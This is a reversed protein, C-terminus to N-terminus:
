SHRPAGWGGSRAPFQGVGCVVLKGGVELLAVEIEADYLALRDGLEGGLFGVVDDYYARAAGAHGGYKGGHFLACLYGAELFLGHHGGIAVTAGEDRFLVGGGGADLAPAAVPGAEVVPPDVVVQEVVIHFVGLFGHRPHYGLAAGDADLGDLEEGVAGDAVIVAANDGNAVRGLGRILVEHSSEGLLCGVATGCEVVFGGAHLEDLFLVAGDGAGDALLFVAGIHLEGGCLAHHQGGAIVHVVLRHHIPVHAIRGHEGEAQDVVCAVPVDEANQCAPAHCRESVGPLDVGVIDAGEHEIGEQGEIDVALAEAVFGNRHAAQVDGHGGGVFGLIAADVVADEVRLGFAGHLTDGAYRRHGEYALAAGPHIGFRHHRPIGELLEALHGANGDLLSHGADLSVVLQAGLAGVVIEAHGSGVHRGYVSGREEADLSIHADRADVGTDHHVVAVSHGVALAIGNGAEVGGADLRAVGAPADVPVHRAAERVRMDEGGSAVGDDM